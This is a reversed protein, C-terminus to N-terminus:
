NKAEEELGSHQRIETGILLISLDDLMDLIKKRGEVDNAEPWKEPKGAPFNEISEINSLCLQYAQQNARPRLIRNGATDLELWNLDDFMVMREGQELPKLIFVSQEEPKLTRDSPLVYRWSGRPRTTAKM